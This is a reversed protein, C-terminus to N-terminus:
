EGFALVDLGEGGAVLTHPPGGAVHVICDGEGVECVEGGQWLRGTGGLVFFIEEEAGHTHVPSTQGGPLARVRKLGVSRSGAATGLDWRTRRLCGSDITESPADDWHM